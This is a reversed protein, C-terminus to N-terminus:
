TRSAPVQHRWCRSSDPFGHLLLVAQGEGEDLVALEVGDGAVRRM